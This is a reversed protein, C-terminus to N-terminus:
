CGFKPISTGGGKTFQGCCKCSMKAPDFSYSINIGTGIDSEVTLLDNRTDNPILLDGVNDLTKGGGGYLNPIPVSRATNKTTLYLNYKNNPAHGDNTSGTNGGGVLEKTSNSQSGPASRNSNAQGASTELLGGRTPNPESEKRPGGGSGATGDEMSVDLLSPNLNGSDEEGPKIALLEQEELRKQEKYVTYAETEGGIPDTSAM